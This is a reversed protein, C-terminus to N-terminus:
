APAPSTAPLSNYILHHVAWKQCGEAHLVCCAPVLMLKPAGTLQNLALCSEQFSTALYQLGQISSEGDALM